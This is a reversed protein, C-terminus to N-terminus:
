ENDMMAYDRKVMDYLSQIIQQMENSNKSDFKILALITLLLPYIQYDESCDQKLFKLTQSLILQYGPHNILQEKNLFKLTFQINIKKNVKKLKQKKQEYKEIERQKIQEQHAHNIVVKKVLEYLVQHDTGSHVERFYNLLSHNNQNQRIIEVYYATDRNQNQNEIEAMNRFRNQSDVKMAKEVKEDQDGEQDLIESQMEESYDVFYLDEIIKRTQLSKKYQKSKLLQYQKMLAIEDQHFLAAKKRSFHSNWKICLTRIVRSAKSNM